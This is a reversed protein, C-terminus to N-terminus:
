PHVLGPADRLRWCYGGAAAELESTRGTRSIRAAGPPPPGVTSLYNIKRQIFFALLLVRSPLLSGRRHGRRGGHRQRCWGLPCCHIEALQPMLHLGEEGVRPRRVHEPRGNVAPQPAEVQLEAPFKRRSAPEPDGPRLPEAAAVPRVGRAEDDGFLQQAEAGRDGRVPHAVALDPRRQQSVPCRLELVLEQRPDDRRLDREANAHALGVGPRVQRRKGGPGRRGLAPPQDVARLDPGAVCLVGRVAVQERSGGTALM